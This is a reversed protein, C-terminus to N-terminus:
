PPLILIPNKLTFWSSISVQADSLIEDGLESLVVDESDRKSAIDALQEISMAAKSRRKGNM